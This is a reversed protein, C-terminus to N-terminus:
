AAFAAYRKDLLELIANGGAVPQSAVRGETDLLVAMPTGHAGLAHGLKTQPDLLVSTQLGMAEGEQKTGSSVVVLEPLKTTVGVDRKRLEPLMRQCFGCNPNWFLLLVERNRFRDLSINQGRLDLLTTAPPSEGIRVDPPHAVANLNSPRPPVLSRIADAGNAVASGIRGDPRVIVAAPTGWAQYSEAVERKKQLLIQSVGHTSSKTRNEEVSGESVVVVTILNRLDRQWSGIEAFLAQCPGCQPNTFLLLTPRALALFTKSAVLQGDLDPLQFDPAVTGVVLGPAASTKRAIAAHPQVGQLSNGIGEIRVLMRGQQLIVQWLLAINAGLLVLAFLGIAALFQPLSFNVIWIALNAPPSQKGQWVLLAALLALVLNRMLTSPSLAESHLQGFCHCHPRRGLLLNISIAAIFVFLLLLGAVAGWQTWIGSLISFGIAVEAIPLVTGLWRALFRPVGFDTLAQRSGSLDLLKAIGAIVFVLALALRVLLIAVWM